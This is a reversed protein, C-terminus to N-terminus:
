LQHRRAKNLNRIATSGQLRLNALFRPVNLVPTKAGYFAMDRPVVCRRTASQQLLPCCVIFSVAFISFLAVDSRLNIPAAIVKQDLTSCSCVLPSRGCPLGPAILKRHNHDITILIHASSKRHGRPQRRCHSDFCDSHSELLLVATASPLIL